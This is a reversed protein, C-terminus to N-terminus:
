LDGDQDNLYCQLADMHNFHLTGWLSEGHIESWICCCECVKYKVVGYATLNGIEIRRSIEKADDLDLYDFPNYDLDLFVEYKFHGDPISLLPANM